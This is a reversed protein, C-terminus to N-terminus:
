FYVNLDQDKVNIQPIFLLVLIAKRLFELNFVRVSKTKRGSM